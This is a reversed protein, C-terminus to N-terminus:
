FKYQIGASIQLYSGSNVAFKMEGMAYLNDSIQYRGGAGFNFGTDSGSGSEGLFNNIANNDHGGVKSKYKSSFFMISLGALGYAEIQNEQYFVYHANLNLASTRYTITGYPYSEKESFFFTYDAAGEWQENIQYVGGIFIAPKSIKTAYGLGGGALIDGRQAKAGFSIMLVMALTMMSIISTKKM